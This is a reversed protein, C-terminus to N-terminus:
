GLIAATATEIAPAARATKGIQAINELRDEALGTEAAAPPTLGLPAAGVQTVVHLDREVLGIVALLAFDLDFDGSGAIGAVPGARLRARTDLGTARAATMSLDPRLLAKEHDFAGARGTMARPLDDFVGAARAPAFPAHVPGLGQRDVNGGADVFSGADAQGAFTL